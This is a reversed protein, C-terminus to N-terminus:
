TTRGVFKGDPRQTLVVRTKGIKPFRMKKPTKKIKSM